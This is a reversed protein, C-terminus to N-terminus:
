SPKLFATQRLTNALGYANGKFSHYDSTFDDICYSQKFDIYSRIGEDIHKELRSMMIEFYKERIAKNDELGPALPMLLFLNEHGRPAVTDDTQSPSCVYFLPKSPWQQDKYIEESHQLLDEEFFLTHHELSPIEKSLGLYY